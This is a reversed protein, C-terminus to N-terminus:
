KLEEMIIEALEMDDLDFEPDSMRQSPTDFQDPQLWVRKEEGDENPGYGGCIYTLNHKRNRAVIKPGFWYEEICYKWAPDLVGERIVIAVDDPTLPRTYRFATM